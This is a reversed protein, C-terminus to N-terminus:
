RELVERYVALTQKATQEWSYRNAVKPGRQRLKSALEKDQLVLKIKEAM